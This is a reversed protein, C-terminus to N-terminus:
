ISKLDDVFRQFFEIEKNLETLEAGTPKNTRIHWSINAIFKEYKTILYQIKKKM